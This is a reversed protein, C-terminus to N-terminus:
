SRAGSSRAVLEQEDLWDHLKPRELRRRFLLYRKAWYPLAKTARFKMFTTLPVAFDNDLEELTRRKTEPVFLFIMILAVINMAAYFGFAGTPGWARLHAPFTISVVAAWMFNTVVSFTMGLERHSLPFVEASYTFPVPGEGPSYFATFLYIFFAILATHALGKDIKFCLGAALLTWAMQPFTFLLLSRRGFTDITLIAPLSFLFNVMGYGFSGLLAFKPGIDAEEFITSSYFAIVNIGCMQQAIMVTHAALTARRIRPITFLEGLRRVYTRFPSKNFENKNSHQIGPFGFLQVHIYYLDRAAQIRTRRLRTLSAYANVYNGKKIHWRPSEPCFFVGLVLPVAPIMASGLMFRWENKFEYVILNSALGLAIGFSVWMQWSMVLAGRIAAPSTEASFVPVTVGKIGVGIGLLLRTVFLQQWTQVFASGLPTILCFIASIMIAGRRGMFFNIIDSLWCGILAAGIFPASNVLGVIWRNHYLEEPSLDHADSAKLPIGLEVPFFVNGGNAGTQDWGQVAAGISCLAITGYLARSQRWRHEREDRLADLHEPYHEDSLDKLIERERSTIETSPREDDTLTPDFYMFADPNRALLAAKAMLDGPIVDRLGKQMRFREAHELVVETDVETLPNRNRHPNDDLGITEISSKDTVDGPQANNPVALAIPM